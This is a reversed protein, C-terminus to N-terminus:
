ALFDFGNVRHKIPGGCKSCKFKLDQVYGPSSNGMVKDTIIKRDVRAMNKVQEKTILQGGVTEICEFVVDTLFQGMGTIDTDGERADQVELSREQIFGNPWNIVAEKLLENKVRIGRVLTLNIKLDEKKYELTDLDIFKDNITKCDKKPCTEKYSYKSGVCLKRMELIITDLVFMPLKKIKNKDPLKEMGNVEVLCRHILEIIMASPNNKFESTSIAEEDAGIVDRIIIKKYESDGIQFGVELELEKELTEANEIRM